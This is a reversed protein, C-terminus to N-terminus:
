QAPKADPPGGLVMVLNVGDALDQRRADIWQKKAQLYQLQAYQLQEDAYIGAARKQKAADFVEAAREELQNALTFNSQATKVRLIGDASEKLANLLANQYTYIVQNREVERGSIQAAIAGGDFIPLNLAPGVNYQRSNSNFLRSIDFAQLGILGQLNIDPLYALRASDVRLKFARIQALLAQLDARRALLDAPIVDPLKSRNASISPKQLAEGASPGQNTLAALQHQAIKVAQLAIAQTMESEELEVRRQNVQSQDALGVAMRQTAIEVLQERAAHEALWLRTFALDAHAAQVGEKAADVMKKQRGWLDLSWNLTGGVLGYSTTVPMGPIYIYNQSLRQQNVQATAGIRPLLGALEANVLQRAGEVRLKALEMNPSAELAKEVLANLQPDSFQTWWDIAIVVDVPKVNAELSEVSAQTPEKFTERPMLACGQALVSAVAVAILTKRMNM